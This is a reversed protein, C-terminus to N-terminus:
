PFTRDPIRRRSPRVRHKSRYIRASYQAPQAGFTVIAGSQAHPVGIEIAKLFAERNGIVHDSPMLLLIEDGGHRQALAAALGAAAATNRGEPEM